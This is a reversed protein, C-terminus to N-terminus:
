VQLVYLQNNDKKIVTLPSIFIVQLIKSNYLLRILTDNTYLASQLNEPYIPNANDICLSEACQWVETNSFISSIM